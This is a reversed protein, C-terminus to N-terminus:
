CGRDGADGTGDDDDAFDEVNSAFDDWNPLPDLPNDPRLGLPDSLEVM